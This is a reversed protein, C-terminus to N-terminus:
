RVDSVKITHNEIFYALQSRQKRTMGHFQVSLRNVPNSTPHVKNGIEYESIVKFPANRLCFGYFAFCIDLELADGPEEEGVTYYFALGGWSVDIIQGRPNKRSIPRLAAWAGRQVQFREHKRRDALEKRETVYDVAADELLKLFNQM